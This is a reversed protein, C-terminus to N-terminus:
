QPGTTKTPIGDLGIHPHSIQNNAFSFSTLLYTHSHNKFAVNLANFNDALKNFNQVNLNGLFKAESATQGAAQAEKKLSEIQAQQANVTQTLANVQRALATVKEALSQEDQRVAAVAPARMMTQASAGSLVIVVALLGISMLKAM